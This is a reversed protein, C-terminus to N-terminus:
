CRQTTTSVKRTQIVLITARWRWSPVLFTLEQQHTVIRPDNSRRHVLRFFPSASATSFHKSSCFAPSQPVFPLATRGARRRKPHIASTQGNTSFGICGWLLGYDCSFRQLIMLAVARFRRCRAPHYRQLGCAGNTNELTPWFM